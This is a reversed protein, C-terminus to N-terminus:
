PTTSRCLTGISSLLPTPKLFLHLCTPVTGAGLDDLDVEFSGLTWGWVFRSAWGSVVEITQRSNIRLQGWSGLGDSRCFEVGFAEAIGRGQLGRPEQGPIHLM